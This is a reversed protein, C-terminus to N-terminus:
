TYNIDPLSSLDETNESIKRLSCFVVIETAQTRLRVIGVSRGGSTPSTLALKQPYFTTPYDARCIHIYIYVGTMFNRSGTQLQGIAWCKGLGLYSSLRPFKRAFCIYVVMSLIVTVLLTYDLDFNDYFSVSSFHYGQKISFITFRDRVLPFLYFNKKSKISCLVLFIHCYLVARSLKLRSVQHLQMLRDFNWEVWYAADVGKAFYGGRKKCEIQQM